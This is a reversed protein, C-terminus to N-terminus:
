SRALAWMRPTHFLVTIHDMVGHTIFAWVQVFSNVEDPCIHGGTLAVYMMVALVGILSVTRVNGDFCKQRRHYLDCM